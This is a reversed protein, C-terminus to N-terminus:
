QTSCSEFYKDIEEHSHFTIGVKGERYEGLALDIEALMEPTFFPDIEGDRNDAFETPAPTLVYSPKQRRRIIIQEGKDALNFMAGQRTRFESSSVELTAIDIFNHNDYFFSQL